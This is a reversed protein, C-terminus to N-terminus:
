PLEAGPPGPIVGADSNAPLLSQLQATLIAIQRELEDIAATNAATDITNESILQLQAEINALRQLSDVQTTYLQSTDDKTSYKSQAIVFPMLGVIFAAMIMVVTQWPVKTSNGDTQRPTTM